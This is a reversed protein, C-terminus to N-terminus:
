PPSLARGGSCSPEDGAIADTFAIAATRRGLGAVVQGIGSQVRRVFIDLALKARADGARARPM